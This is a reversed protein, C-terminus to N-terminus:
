RGDNKEQDPTEGRADIKLQLVCAGGDVEDQPYTMTVVAGTM